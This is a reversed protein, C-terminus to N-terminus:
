DDSMIASSQTKRYIQALSEMEEETLPEWHDEFKQSLDESNVAEKPPTFSTDVVDFLHTATAKTGTCSVEIKCNQIDPRAHKLAISLAKRRTDNALYYCSFNKREGKTGVFGTLDVFEFVAYGSAYSQADCLACRGTVHATCLAEEMRNESLIYFRHIKAIFLPDTRRLWVHKTQGSKIVYMPKRRRRRMEAHAAEQAFFEEQQSPSIFYAALQGRAQTIAPKTEPKLLAGPSKPRLFVPKKIKKVLM